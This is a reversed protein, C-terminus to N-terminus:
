WAAGTRQLYVAACARAQQELPSAQEPQPKLELVGVGVPHHDRESSWAVSIVGDSHSKIRFRVADVEVAAAHSCRARAYGTNCGHRLLDDSIDAAAAAQCCGTFIAGLPSAPPSGALATGPVFLPCAM